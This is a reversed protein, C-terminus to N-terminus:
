HKQALDYLRQYHPVIRQLAQDCAYASRQEGVYRTRRVFRPFEAIELLGVRRKGLVFLPHCGMDVRRNLPSLIVVATSGKGFFFLLNQLAANRKQVGAGQFLILNILIELHCM